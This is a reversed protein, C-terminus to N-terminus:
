FVRSYFRQVVESDDSVLHVLFEGLKYGKSMMERVIQEKNSGSVVVKCDKLAVYQNNYEKQLEEKHSKYYNYEKSLQDSM